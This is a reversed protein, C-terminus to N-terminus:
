IEAKSKLSSTLEREFAILSTKAEFDFFLPHKM